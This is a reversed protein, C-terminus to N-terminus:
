LNAARRLIDRGAYRAREGLEEEIRLLRNYKATREGRAPAGTKIQGAGTAVALDAITTDETEGSRHSIVCTWGAMSAEDVADLTETLTGIQNLKILVSNAAKEQIGRRIREVNTVFIDDGVLQVKDGIRETLLRWGAWDEQAMGDEISVIPYKRCWEEWLEVLGEPAFKRGERALVYHGDKELESTAPDLAIAVDEGPRHGATEIALVILEMAAENKPLPPAFGGEDGVTTPLGRDHLLRFLSHYVESGMRLAQAFTPAGVPAVMFEQFDTSGEAHRGGNLINFLPVPLLRAEEGGLYRYLPLSSHSAAAHAVALSVGLTANAGLSSKNPTGDLEILAQDLARQDDGAMGVIKGAITGNVNAVAKLVGKGGYRSKDGDRLEVAEHVGTSAGSPVKATGAAGSELAVDVEITPNGRSDLIERAHVARIAANGM